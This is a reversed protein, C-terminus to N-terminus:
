FGSKKWRPSTQLEKLGKKFKKSPTIKELRAGRFKEVKIFGVVKGQKVLAHRFYPPVTATKGKRTRNYGSVYVDKAM